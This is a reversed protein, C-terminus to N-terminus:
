RIVLRQVMVNEGARVNVLYMGASLQSADLLDTFPGDQMAMRQGHVLRGSADRVEVDVPGAVGEAIHPAVPGGNSPNPYLVLGDSRDTSAVGEAIVYQNGSGQMCPPTSLTCPDVLDYLKTRPCQAAASNLMFRCAPGWAQFEGAVIGRVKVNLFGGESLQNGSWANVKFHCARTASAALGNTTSHYQIRKFSYGGNPDYWWMQNGSSTHTMGYQAAVAPNSNAVVYEAGCPAARWDLKDCSTSILRDVGLPLCFGEGNSIASM